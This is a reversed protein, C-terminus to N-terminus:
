KAPTSRREGLFGIGLMQPGINLAVVPGVDYNGFPEYGTAHVMDNLLIQDAEPYTGHLMGYPSGPSMRELAIDRLKEGVAANGRVKCHTKAVGDILSIIPKIGMAEGLIASAAGIRGSKKAYELSYAAVYIEMRSFWGDLYDLVEELTEGEQLKQSAQLLPYGYAVSFCRSDVIEIRLKRAGPHEQYFLDRAQLANEYTASARSTIGSFLLQEYGEALTKVFADYFRMPTIQAHKPISSAREMITYFEQATTFNEGQLYTVGDATIPFPLVEVQYEAALALPIDCGSDTMVKCIRNDAM